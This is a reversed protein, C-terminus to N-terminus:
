RKPPDPPLFGEADWALSEGPRQKPRSRLAYADVFLAEHDTLLARLGGAPVEGPELVGDIGNMAQLEEKTIGEAPEVLVVRPSVEQTVSYRGSSEAASHDAGLILMLERPESM